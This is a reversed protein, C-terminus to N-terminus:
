RCRTPQSLARVLQVLRVLAEFSSDWTEVNVRPYAASCDPVSAQDTAVGVSALRNDATYRLYVYCPTASM